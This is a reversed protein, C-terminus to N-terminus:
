LRLVMPVFDHFAHEPGTSREARILRVAVIGRAPLVVLHQGLSGSAHCGVIPGHRVAHTALNRDRTQALWERIRTPEDDLAAAVAAAHEAPELERDQLRALKAVLDPDVGATRWATLTEADIVHRSYAPVMWWLQGHLPNARSGSTTAEVLWDRDVLQRDGVKGGDLVLQGIALLDRGTLRAGAMVMPQFSSDHGWSRTTIGLPAYLREFVYQDLPMGAAVAVVQALVAVARNDYFFREGPRAVLRALSAYHVHDPSAYVDETGPAAALGSTHQLIHRLTIKSRNGVQWRPLFNAVEVEVSALLGERILSGIALATISKTISMLPLPESLAPDGDDVVVRGHQAVILVDSAAQRSRARLADLAVPNLDHPAGTAPRTPATPSDPTCGAVMATCVGLGCTLAKGAMRAFQRGFIMAHLEESTVVTPQQSLGSVAVM